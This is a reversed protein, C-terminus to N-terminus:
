KKMEAMYEDYAKHGTREYLNWYRDDNKLNNFVPTVKLWPMESSRNQCAKELWYFASDVEGIGSYYWGIFYDPSGNSTTDSKNILQNIIVQARQHNKTKNYSLALCAQFRPLLIESEQNKLATELYLKASDYEELWIFCEGIRQHDPDRQSELYKKITSYAEKKNDSLIYAETM